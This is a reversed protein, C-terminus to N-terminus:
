WNSKEFYNFLADDGQDSWKPVPIECTGEQPCFEGIYIGRLGDIKYIDAFPKDGATAALWSNHWTINPNYFM